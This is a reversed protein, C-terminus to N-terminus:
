HDKALVWPLHDLVWSRDEWCLLTRSSLFSLLLSAQPCAFTFPGAFVFVFVM